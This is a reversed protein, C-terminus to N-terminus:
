RNMRRPQLVEVGKETSIRIMHATGSGGQFAIVLNPRRSLLSYNRIKGADVKHGGWDAKVTECIISKSHAYMIAYSDAGRAGGNLIALPHGRKLIIADMSDRFYSWDSFDRGGCILWKQGNEDKM